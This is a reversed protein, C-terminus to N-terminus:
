SLSVLHVKQSNIRLATM